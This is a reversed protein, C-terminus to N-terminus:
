AACGPASTARGRRRVLRSQRPRPAATRTSPAARRPTAATLRPLGDETERRQQDRRAPPELPEATVRRRQGRELDHEVALERRQARGADGALVRQADREDPARLPQGLREAHQGGFRGLHGRHDLGAAAIREAENGGGHRDAGRDRHIRRCRQRQRLQRRRVQHDPVDGRADRVRAQHHEVIAVVRARQLQRPRARGGNALPRPTGAPGGSERSMM